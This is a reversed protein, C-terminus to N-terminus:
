MNADGGRPCAQLHYAGLHFVARGVGGDVRPQGEALALARAEEMQQLGIAPLAAFTNHAAQQLLGSANGGTSGGSAGATSLQGALGQVCVRLMFSHPSCAHPCRQLSQVVSLTLRMGYSHVPPLCVLQGVM